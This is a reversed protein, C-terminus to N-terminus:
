RSTRRGRWRGAWAALERGSFAAACALLARAINRPGLLVPPFDDWSPVVPMHEFAWYIWALLVFPVLFSVAVVIASSRVWPLPMAGVLFWVSALIISGQWAWVPIDGCEFAKGLAFLAATFVVLEAGAQGFGWLLKRPGRTM